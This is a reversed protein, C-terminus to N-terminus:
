NNGKLKDFFDDPLIEVVKEPHYALELFLKRIFMAKEENKREKELDQCVRKHMFELYNIIEYRSADRRWFKTILKLANRTLESYDDKVMHLVRYTKGVNTNIERIKSSRRISDITDLLERRYIELRELRPLTKVDEIPESM